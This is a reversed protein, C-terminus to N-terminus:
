QKGPVKGGGARVARRSWVCLCMHVGVCVNMRELCACTCICVCMRSWVCLCMHACAYVDQEVCVCVCACTHVCVCVCVCVCADQRGAAREEAEGVSPRRPMRVAAGPGARLGGGPAGSAPACSTRTQHTPVPAGADRGARSRWAESCGPGPSERGGSKGGQTWVM